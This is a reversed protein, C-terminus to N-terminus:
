SEGAGAGAGRARTGEMLNAVTISATPESRRPPRLGQTLPACWVCPTRGGLRACERDAFGDRSDGDRQEDGHQRRRDAAEYVGPGDRARDVARERSEAPTYIGSETGSVADATEARRKHEAGDFDGRGNRTWHLSDPSAWSALITDAAGPEGDEGALQLPELCALCLGRYDREQLRSDGPGRDGPLEEADPRVNAGVSNVMFGRPAVAARHRHVTGRWILAGIAGTGQGPLTGARGIGRGHHVSYQSCFDLTNITYDGPPLPQSLEDTTLKLPTPSFPGGPLTTVTPYVDKADLTLPLNDNLVKTLAAEAAKEKAENELAALPNQAAAHTPVAIAALAAQLVLLGVPSMTKM